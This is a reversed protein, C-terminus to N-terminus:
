HIRAKAKGHVWNSVANSTKRLDKLEWLEAEGTEIDLRPKIGALGCLAQFRANPSAGGGLFVPADPRLDEPM